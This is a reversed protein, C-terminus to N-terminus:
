ASSNQEEGCNLVTGAPVIQTASNSVAEESIHEEADDLYDQKVDKPTAWPIDGGFYRAVERSPTGGGVIKVCSGLRRPKIWANPEGFM